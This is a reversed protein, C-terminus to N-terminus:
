FIKFKLGSSVGYSSMQGYHFEPWLQYEFDVARWRIRESIRYDLGGGPAVVFSSDKGLSYPYNFQGLGVLAKGYPQFRGFFRSYRVGGLYTTANIDHTQHFKLWRAEGEFGFHRLTDLDVFATAGLVKVEGYQLYYGSATGGVSLRAGGADAAPVTQACAARGLGLCVALLVAAMLAGRFPRMALRVGWTQPFFKFNKMKEEAGQSRNWLERARM